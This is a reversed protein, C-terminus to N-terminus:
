GDTPRAREPSPRPNTWRRQDTASMRRAGTIPETREPKWASFLNWHERVYDAGYGSYINRSGKVTALIPGNLDEPPPTQHWTVVIRDAM